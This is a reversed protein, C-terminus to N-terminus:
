QHIIDLLFEYPAFRTLQMNVLSCPLLIHVHDGTSYKWKQICIYGVIRVYSENIENCVSLTVTKNGCQCQM